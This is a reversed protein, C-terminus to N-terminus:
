RKPAMATLLHATPEPEIGILAKTRQMGLGPYTPRFVVRAMRNSSVRSCAVRPDVGVQVALRRAFDAYSMEEQGSLHFIGPLRSRAVSLLGSTAYDLSMPCMRLDDFPTCPEGALLCSLFEGGIGAHPVLVKSLRVIAVPTSMTSLSLLHQEAEVKQRGYECTPSCPSGEAPWESTGDFVAASSLFVIRTGQSLLKEALAVTNLVNVQRTLDPNDECTSISTIAACLIAIDYKRTSFDDRHLDALELFLRDEVAASRRRTTGTVVDISGHLLGVFRAGLLSDAGVM